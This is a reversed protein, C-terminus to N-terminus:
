TDTCWSRLQLRMLSAKKLNKKEGHSGLKAPQMTYNYGFIPRMTKPMWDTWRGAELQAMLAKLLLLPIFMDIVTILFCGHLPCNSLPLELCFGKLAAGNWDTGMWDLITNYRSLPLAQLTPLFSCKEIWKGKLLWNNPTITKDTGQM